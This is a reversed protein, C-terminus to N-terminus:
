AMMKALNDLDHQNTITEGINIDLIKAVLSVLADLIQSAGSFRAYSYLALAFYVFNDQLRVVEVGPMLENMAVPNLTFGYVNGQNNQDSIKAGSFQATQLLNATLNGPKNSLSVFSEYGLSKVIIGQRQLPKVADFLASENGKLDASSNTLLVNIKGQSGGRLRNDMRIYSLVAENIVQSPSNSTFQLQAIDLIFFRSEQGAVTKDKVIAKAEQIFQRRINGMEPFVRTLTSGLYDGTRSFATKGGAVLPKRFYMAFGAAVLIAVVVLLRFLVTSIDSTTFFDTAYGLIGFVATLAVLPKFGVLGRRIPKTGDNGRSSGGLGPEIEGVVEEAAELLPKGAQVGEALPRTGGKQRLYSVRKSRYTIEQSLSVETELQPRVVEYALGAEKLLKTIGPTHFGGAVFAVLSRDAQASQLVQMLNEVMAEDRKQAALYFGKAGKFATILTSASLVPTRFNYGLDDVQEAVFDRIAAHQAVIARLSIKQQRVWEQPIMNLSFFREQLEVWRLHEFLQFAIPHRILGKAIESEASLLEDFLADVNVGECARLYAVYRHVAPAEKKTQSLLRSYYSLPSIRGEKLAQSDSLLVDMGEESLVGMLDQVLERGEKEVQDFDLHREQFSLAAMQSLNPYHGVVGSNISKLFLVYEGLSQSGQDLALRKEELRTLLSNFNHPMLKLLQSKTEAFTKLVEKRAERSMTRADVNAQYLGPTEIGIIKIRGPAHTMAAYEEGLLYGARLLGAGVDEKEKQNPLRAITDSDVPGSVGEVAVVLNKGQLAAHDELLSVIESLNTQAAVDDHVDQLHYILRSKRSPAYVEVISGVSSPIKFNQSSITKQHQTPSPLGLAHPLPPAMVAAQAMPVSVCEYVMIAAMLVAVSQLFNKKKLNLVNM